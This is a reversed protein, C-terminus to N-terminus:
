IQHSRLEKSLQRSNPIFRDVVAYFQASHNMHVLHALEHVVVFDIFRKDLKVLESNLTITGRSSCSGWRSRMKKFKLENYELAMTKSWFEVRQTLFGPAYNKYFLEYCRNIAEPTSKKVKLLLEQLLKAEGIDVSVVEGFLLLQDEQVITQEKKSAMVALRKRIWIEKKTLLERIYNDPVKPTKLEITADKKITIYSNKLRPIVIHSIALDNFRLM